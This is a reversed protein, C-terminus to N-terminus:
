IMHNCTYLELSTFDVPLNQSYSKSNVISWNMSLIYCVRNRADEKSKYFFNDTNMPVYITIAKTPDCLWSVAHYVYPVPHLSKHFIHM